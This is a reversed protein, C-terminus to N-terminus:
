GVKAELADLKEQLLKERLLAAQVQPRAAFPKCQKQRGALSTVVDVSVHQQSGERLARLGFQSDLHSIFGLGSSRCGEAKGAFGSPLGPKAFLIRFFYISWQPWGPKEGPPFHVLAISFGPLELRTHCISWAEEQWSTEMEAKSGLPLAEPGRSGHGKRKLWNATNALNFSRVAAKM